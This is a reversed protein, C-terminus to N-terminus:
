NADSPAPPPLDGAGRGIWAFPPRSACRDGRLRARLALGPAPTLGPVHPDEALGLGRSSSGARHAAALRRGAPSCPLGALAQRAASVTSKAPPAQPASAAPRATALLPLLLLALLLVWRPAAM